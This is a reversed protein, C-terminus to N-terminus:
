FHAFIDNIFLYISVNSAYFFQQKGNPIRIEMIQHTRRNKRTKPFKVYAVCSGWSRIFDTFIIKSSILRLEVKHMKAEHEDLASYGREISGM